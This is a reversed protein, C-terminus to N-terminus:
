GWILTQVLLGAILVFLIGIITAGIPNRPNVTWGIGFLKPLLLPQHGGPTTNVWYYWTTTGLLALVALLIIVMGIRQPAGFATLLIILLLVIISIVPGYRKLDFNRV